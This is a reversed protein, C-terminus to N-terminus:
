PQNNLKKLENELWTKYKEKDQVPPIRSVGQKMAKGLNEVLCRLDGAVVMLDGDPYNMLDANQRIEPYVGDSVLKLSRFAPLVM